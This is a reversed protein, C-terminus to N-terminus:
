EWHSDTMDSFLVQVVSSEVKSHLLM